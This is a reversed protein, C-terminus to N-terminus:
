ALDRRRYAVAGAAILLLAAASLAVIPALEISEAPYRPLLSFVSLKEAWTPLDFVDGLFAVFFAYILYVWILATLRPILGVLLVGLGVFALMGPLFAMAAALYLGFGLPESMVVFAASWMGLASLLQLVVAFCVTMLADCVILRVRSVSGALLAEMRGRGEEGKLRLALVVVPITATITMILTMTAIVPNMIDSLNGGLGLMLQYLENGEIFSDLDNFISGYTAGFTFVVVAWAAMMGRSLRWVLGLEGALFASAHARGRRTPLMGRGSDRRASLAFAFVCVVLGVLLLILEPWLYNNVYAESREILGFPSFRAAAESSVDGLARLLYAGGLLGLASGTTARATSFLQAFVATIGAFLFGVVGLACGFVLSGQLGISEVGFAAITLGVLIALLANAVFALLLVALLNAGRGVPLASLLEGRGEEEDRRTHRVVFMINMVAFGLACWVLMFQAYLPGYSQGDGYALGCLAVMAPNALAEELGAMSAADGVVDPMMPVFFTALVLLGGMWLALWLRDHRLVLAM